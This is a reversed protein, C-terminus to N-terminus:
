NRDYVGTLETLAFLTWCVASTFCGQLLWDLWPSVSYLPVIPSLIVGIWFGNCAPCAVMQSFPNTRYNGDKDQRLFAAIKMKALINSAGWATMCYILDADM